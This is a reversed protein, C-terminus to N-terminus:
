LLIKHKRISLTVANSAAPYKLISYTTTRLLEHLSMWQRTATVTTSSIMLSVGRTRRDNDWPWISTLATCCRSTTRARPWWPQVNDVNVAFLSTFVPTNSSWHLTTWQSLIGNNSRLCGTYQRGTDALRVSPLWIDSVSACKLQM